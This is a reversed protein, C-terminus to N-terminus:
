NELVFHEIEESNVSFFVEEVGITDRLSYFIAYKVEEKLKGDYVSDLLVNNFNMNIINEDLEYNMLEVHYNLHSSLTGDMSINTKLNEIVVDVKDVVENIVYSVPVYYDNNDNKLYYVTVMDTNRFTNIDYVKNIGFNRDLYLDIRKGSVPLKILQEGEIFIMIKKVSDITTLSYIIAEIMKEETEKSVNLFDKSFNVKLLGDKDLTYDLLKTNKPIVAKFNEPINYSKINGIILSNIIEEIREETTKSTSKMETMGVYNNKDLLYIQKKEYDTDIEDIDYKLEEPFSYLLIAVLVLLISISLKKFTIKKLM